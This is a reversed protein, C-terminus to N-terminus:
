ETSSFGSRWFVTHKMSAWSPAAKVTCELSSPSTREKSQTVATQRSPLCYMGAVLIQLQARRRSVTQDRRQGSHLVDDELFVQRAPTVGLSVREAYEIESATGHISYTQSMVARGRTSVLPASERPADRLARLFRENEPFGVQRVVAVLGALVLIDDFVKPRDLDLVSPTRGDIGSRGHEVLRRRRGNEVLLHLLRSDAM